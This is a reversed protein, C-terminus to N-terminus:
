SGSQVRKPSSLQRATMLLADENNDRYYGKRIGEQVFGFNRYLAQAAANGARVELTAMCVELSVAEAIMASLLIRGLGRGRWQPHVAFTSIHAEDVIHWYGIFGAIGGAEATEVVLLHSAQNETLEFWFSNEPWPNPFSLRDIEMVDSIDETTMKRVRSSVLGPMHSTM